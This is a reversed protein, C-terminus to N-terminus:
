KVLIMKKISKQDDLRLEYFYIGSPYNSANWIVKHTGKSLNSKVLAEVERGLLDFIKLEAFGSKSTSFEITTAPNFPNPYNQELNFALPIVKEDQVGTVPSPYTVRLNDLYFTGTYTEGSIRSCALKIKIQKIRAPYDFIAGTTVAAVKAFATKVSDFSSSVEFYKLSNLNFLENNEDSILYSIIHKQGDSKGDIKLSDPTGYLPVDGSIYLWYLKAPDYIFKYDVRLSSTGFSSEQTSISLKSAVTDINDGQLKWGSLNEFNDILKLGNGVQVTVDATDAAKDFSVIVKTTGNSKGRFVGISDITGIAPNLVKWKFENMGLFQQKNDTDYQTIRYKLPNTNDTVANKPQLIVKTITRSTVKASDKFGNYNAYVYGTGATTSAKFLGTSTISGLKPDVSYQLQSNNVPLPNFYQDLAQISFSQTGGIFLNISAPSIKISNLTGQDPANTVVLLANALSRESGDSPVNMIQDRVIMESSGGGDFNLGESVGIAIMFDALETLKMGLSATSRGDAIILYLKTSDKSFGIATRPERNYAHDPGGEDKYGQDAYNKGAAVIRPYGGLMEKLKPLGPTIKNVIKVTDGVLVNNNLFTQSAGHGSVVLQNAAFAMSGVNSVKAAVVCRITDNVSIPDIPNLLIETGYMNTGSTAGIFKNYQIMQDTYRVANINNITNIGNKTILSGSMTVRAMMPKNKDDFGITSLSIPNRLITGNKIQINIPIGTALDFFDANIAGLVRHGASSNRNVMSKLTERGVLNDKGKVTEIKNFGNKLDVELVFMTWPVSPVVYSTYTLGVGVSKTFVTDYKYQANNNQILFLLCLLTFLKKM